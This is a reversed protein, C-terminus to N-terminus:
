EEDIEAQMQLQWIRNAATSIAAKALLKEELKEDDRGKLRVKNPQAQMLVPLLEKADANAISAISRYGGEWFVRATRSKIFPIKTLALLDTRAGAMLRDSFHDLAAALAGWGMTQCFKVMGAAFGQCTQSLTQVAGRPLRYKRSVVHIPVENCLDRLQFALYFRRYVQALERGRADEGQAAGRALRLIATPKIGVFSLVRLGSEDLLEMENRFAQWDVGVAFDQVPTFAYLIHMDDDMVFARLARSLEKHVFVGDDPDMASAVIARGLQTPAFNGAVESTALGMDRIEQLGAETYQRVVDRGHSRSLLSKSFYDQVSERSTALRISIVELLARQIRRNDNNLCSSALPIETHMLELIQELETDRCCLYTDGVPSKGQRGARGRMQRLM